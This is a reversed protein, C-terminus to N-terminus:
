PAAGPACPEVAFSQTAEDGGPDRVRVVGAYVDANPCRVIQTPSMSSWAPPACAPLSGSFSLADGQATTVITFDSPRGLTCDATTRWSVRSIAPAGGADPLGSADVCAVLVLCALSRLV